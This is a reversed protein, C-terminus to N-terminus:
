AKPQISRIAGQDVPIKETFKGLGIGAMDVILRSPDNLHFTTYIMPQQGEVKIETKEAGPNVTINQIESSSSSETM